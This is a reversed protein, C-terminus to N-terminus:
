GAGKKLLGCLEIMWAAAQPADAPDGVVPLYDFPMVWDVDAAELHPLIWDAVEQPSGTAWAGVCHERTVAGLVQEIFSDETAYPRFNKYYTWGEPFMPLEMGDEKKWDGPDMRGMAGSFWKILPNEYAAELKDPDPNMLVSVWIGIRFEKPDRGKEEVQKRIGAVLEATQEPTPTVNPIALALGDAWSTSYDLLQPGGGLGWLTPKHEKAGGLFAKELQWRKGEFDIPEDSDMFQRYIQFLDKMRSMGQNTPHGFPGTQKVEGGGIQFNANGGTMHALTLMSQVQEAPPRRVSDTTLHQKLGPAVASIYPAVMYADLSSDTDHAIAAMPTNETTWLQIPVFGAMQDPILIGDIADSAEYAKCQEAIAQIPFHRDAWVGACTELM